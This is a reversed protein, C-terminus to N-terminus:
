LNGDAGKPRLLIKWRKMTLVNCVRWLLRLEASEASEISTMSTISSHHRLIAPKVPVDDETRPRISIIESEPNSKPDGDLIELRPLAERVRATYDERLSM